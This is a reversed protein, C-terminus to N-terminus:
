KWGAAFDFFGNDQYCSLRRYIKVLDDLSALTNNAYSLLKRIVELDEKYDLTLRVDSYNDNLYRSMRLHKIEPMRGDWLPFTVHERDQQSLYNDSLKLLLSKSFVEVDSGNCFLSESAPTYTSTYDVNHDIHLSISKDVWYPDVLPCDSTIRIINCENYNSVANLHRSILDNQSGRVVRAGIAQIYEYLPDSTESEPVIFIIKSIFNSCLLREYLIDISCKDDFLPLLVKGPLRSSETRAQILCINQLSM